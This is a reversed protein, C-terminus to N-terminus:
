ISGITKSVKKLFEVLVMEGKLIGFGPHFGGRAGSMVCVMVDMVEVRGEGDVMCGRGWLFNLTASWLRLFLRSMTIFGVSLFRPM